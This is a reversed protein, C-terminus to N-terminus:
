MPLIRLSVEEWEDVRDDRFEVEVDNVDLVGFLCDGDLAKAGKEFM